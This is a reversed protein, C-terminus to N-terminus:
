ETATEARIQALAEPTDVDVLVASDGMEVEVL